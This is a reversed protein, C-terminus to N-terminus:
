EAWRREFEMKLYDCEMNTFVPDGPIEPLTGYGMVRPILHLFIKEAVPKTMLDSANEQSAIKIIKVVGHLVMEPIFKMRIAVHKIKNNAIPNNSWTVVSANDEWITTAILQHLLVYPIELLLIRIGLINQITPTLAIYEAEATSHAIVTQRKSYWVVPGSGLYIIHGGTSYRTELDAAFDSDCMAVLSPRVGGLHLRRDHTNLLYKLLRLIALCVLKTPDATFRALYSTAYAIDPRCTGAIYNLIGLLERLPFKSVYRRQKYSENTMSGTQLYNNAIMPTRVKPDPKINWKTCVDRIYQSLGVTVLQDECHHEIEVGLYKVLKPSRTVKYEKAIYEYYQEAMAHCTCAILIDDVYILILLINGALVLYYLCPESKVRTMGLRDIMFANITENWNKPAQKLGYLSKRLLLKGRMSLNLLAESFIKCIGYRDRYDEYLSEILSELDKPPEMYITEGIEANLFATSVDLQITFMNFIAVLSLLIRLTTMRAVPAYINEYEEKMDDRDGRAVLRSKTTTKDHPNKLTDVWRCPLVQVGEEPQEVEWVGKEVMHSFIEKKRSDFFSVGEHNDNIETLIPLEEMDSDVVTENTLEEEIRSLKAHAEGAGLDGLVSVNTLQRRKRVRQGLTSTSPHDTGGRVVANSQQMPKVVSGASGIEPDSTTQQDDGTDYGLASNVGDLQETGAKGLRYMGGPAVVRAEEREHYLKVMKAVDPAHITQVEEQGVLGEETILAVFAVIYKRQVAVRTTVYLMENEDDRFVQGELYKYDELVASEEILDLTDGYKRKLETVEDFIVHSSTMVRNGEIDYVLVGQCRESFGLFYAKYSKEVFGKPRLDDAIHAYCVCGWKRWRSVDPIVGYKAEHPTMTGFATETPMRNFLYASHRVAYPWFRVPIVCALLMANAMEFITRHNREIVANLEPTYPSSHIVTTHRQSLYHVINRSILEPAGDSQYYQMTLNERALQVECLDQVNGFAEAKTKMFYVHVWKTENDIFGQYYAQDEDGKTAFPGKIDTSIKKINSVKPVLVEVPRGGQNANAGRRFAHRTSKARACPDCIPQPKEKKVIAEDIGAVLGKRVATTIDAKNRHGWRQHLLELSERPTADALMAKVKSSATRLDFMYLDDKVKATILKDGESSYVTGTGNEFVIKCGALDFRRVSALNTDLRDDEIVRVHKMDGIDCTYQSEICEGTSATQITTYEEQLRTNGSIASANVLHVTAASDLAM